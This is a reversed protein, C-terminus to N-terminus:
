SAERDHDLAYLARDLADWMPGTTRGVHRQLVRAAEVARWLAGLVRQRKVEVAYPVEHPSPPGDLLAALSVMDEQSLSLRGAASGRREKVWADVREKGTM